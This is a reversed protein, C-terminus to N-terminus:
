HWLPCVTCGSHDTNLRRYKRVSLVTKIQASPPSKETLKRNLVYKKQTGVASHVTHQVYRQDYLSNWLALWACAVCVIGLRKNVWAHSRENVSTWLFEVAYNGTSKHVNWKHPNQWLYTKSTRSKKKTGNLTQVLCTSGNHRQKLTNLSIWM